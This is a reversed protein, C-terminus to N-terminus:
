HIRRFFYLLSNILAFHTDIKNLVKSSHDSQVQKHKTLVTQIRICQILHTLLQNKRKSNTGQCSKYIRFGKLFMEDVKERHSQQCLKINLRLILIKQMKLGILEKTVACIQRIIVKSREEILLETLLGFHKIRQKFQKACNHYSVPSTEIAQNEGPTCENKIREYM